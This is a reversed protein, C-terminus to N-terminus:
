EEKLSFLSASPERWSRPQASHSRRHRKEAVFQPSDAVSFTSRRENVMVPRASLRPPMWGSIMVQDGATMMTPMVFLSRTKDLPPRRILRRLVSRHVHKRAEAASASDPIDDCRPKPVPRSWLRHVSRSPTRVIGAMDADDTDPEEEVILPVVTSQQFAWLQKTESVTIPKLNRNELTSPARMCLESGCHPWSHHRRHHRINPM